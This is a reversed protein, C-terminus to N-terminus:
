KCERLPAPETGVNCLQKDMKPYIRETGWQGYVKLFWNKSVVCLEKPSLACVCVTCLFKLVRVWLERSVSLLVASQQPQRSAHQSRPLIECAGRVMHNQKFSQCCLLADYECKVCECIIAARLRLDCNQQRQGVRASTQVQRSPIPLTWFDANEDKRGDITGESKRGCKAGLLKASVLLPGLHYLVWNYQKDDAWWGRQCRHLDTM